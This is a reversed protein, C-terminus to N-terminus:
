KLTKIFTCTDTLNGSHVKEMYSDYVEFLDPVEDVVGYADTETLKSFRPHSIISRLKEPKRHDFREVPKSGYFTKLTYRAM